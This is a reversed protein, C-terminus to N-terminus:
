LTCLTACAFHGDAVGAPSPTLRKEFMTSAGSRQIEGWSQSAEAHHQDRALHRGLFAGTDVFIL